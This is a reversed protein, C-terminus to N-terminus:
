SSVSRWGARDRRPSTRRGIWGLSRRRGPGGKRVRRGRITPRRERGRLREGGRSDGRTERAGEARPELLAPVATVAPPVVRRYMQDPQLPPPPPVLKPETVTVRVPMITAPLAVVSGEWPEADVVGRGPGVGRGAEFGALEAVLLSGALLMPACMAVGLVMPRLARGRIWKRQGKIVFRSMLWEPVGGGM